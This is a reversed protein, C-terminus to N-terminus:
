AIFVVYYYVVAALNNEQAGPGHSLIFGSPDSQVRYNDNDRVYATLGQMVMMNPDTFKAEAGKMLFMLMDTPTTSNGLVCGFKAEGGCAIVRDTAGNGTYTGVVIETGPVM